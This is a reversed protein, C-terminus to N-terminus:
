AGAFPSGGVAKTVAYGGDVAVVTGSLYGAAPGALM